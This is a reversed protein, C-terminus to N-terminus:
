RWPSEVRQRSIIRVGSSATITKEQGPAIVFPFAKGRFERWHHIAQNGNSDTVAWGTAPDLSLKHTRSVNPLRENTSAIRFWQGSGSWEITPYLDLDGNNKIPQGSTYIDPERQHWVGNHSLLPITAQIHSQTDPNKEPTKIPEDLVADIEWAISHPPTIVLKGPRTTSFAKNFRRYLWGLGGYRQHSLSESLLVELEGELPKYTTATHAAGVGSANQLHSREPTATLGSLELLRVGSQHQNLPWVSGDVGYWDLYYSEKM